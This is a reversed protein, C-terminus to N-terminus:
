TWSHILEDCNASGAQTVQLNSKDSSIEPRVAVLPLPANWLEMNCNFVWDVVTEYFKENQKLWNSKGPSYQLKWSAIGELEVSSAVIEFEM